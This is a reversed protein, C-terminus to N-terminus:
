YSDSKADSGGRLEKIFDKTLINETSIINKHNKNSPFIIFDGLDEIAYITKIEEDSLEIHIEAIPTLVKEETKTPTKELFLVRKNVFMLILNSSNANTENSYQQSLNKKPLIPITKKNKTEYKFYIDVFENPKIKNLFLYERKSLQFDFSYLGKKPTARLNNYATSSPRAIDSYSILDGKKINKLLISDAIFDKNQNIIIDDYTKDEDELTTETTIDSLNIIEGLYLDRSAVLFSYPVKKPAPPLDSLQKKTSNEQSTILGFVSILLIIISIIIIIKKNM